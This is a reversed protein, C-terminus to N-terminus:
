SDIWVASRPCFPKVSASVLWTVAVFVLVSSAQPITLTQNQQTKLLVTIELLKWADRVIKAGPAGTAVLM